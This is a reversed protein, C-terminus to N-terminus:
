PSYITHKRSGDAQIVKFDGFDVQAQRGPDTEFRVYAIRRNEDKIRHIVDKVITRGGDFGMKVLRDYIWSATHCGDEDLWNEIAPMFPDLKSAHPVSARPKGILDPDEAYHKIMRRDHGTKRAIERYSLEQNSFYNIEVQRVRSIM